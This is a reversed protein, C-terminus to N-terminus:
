LTLVNGIANNTYENYMIIKAIRRFCPELINMSMNDKKNASSGTNITRITEYATSRSLEVNAFLNNPKMNRAMLEKAVVM